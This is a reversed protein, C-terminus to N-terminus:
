WRPQRLGAIKGFFWRKYFRLLREAKGHRGMGPSEFGGISIELLHIPAYGHGGWKDTKHKTALGILSNM